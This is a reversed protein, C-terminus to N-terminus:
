QRARRERLSTVFAGPIAEATAEAVGRDAFVGFCTPGSGSVGATVAGAARLGDIVAALNPRLALAAPQLDNNVGSEWTSPSSDLLARLDEMDLRERWGEM